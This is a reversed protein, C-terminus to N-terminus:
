CLYENTDLVHDHLADLINVCPLGYLGYDQLHSLYPLFAFLYTPPCPGRRHLHQSRAPVLAYTYHSANQTSHGSHPTVTRATSQAACQDQNVQAKSSAHQQHASLMLLITHWRSIRTNHHVTPAIHERM